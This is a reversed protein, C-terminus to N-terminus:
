IHPEISERGRKIYEQYWWHIQHTSNHVFNINLTSMYTCSPIPCIGTCSNLLLPPYPSIKPLINYEYHLFLCQEHTATCFDRTWYNYLSYVFHLMDWFSVFLWGWCKTRLDVTLIIYVEFLLRSWIFAPGSVLSELWYFWLCPRKVHVKYQLYQLPAHGNMWATCRSKLTKSSPCHCFLSVFSGNTLNTRDTKWQQYQCTYVGTENSATDISGPLFYYRLTICHDSHPNNTVKKSM